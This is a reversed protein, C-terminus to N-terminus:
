SLMTCILKAVAQMAALGDARLRGIDRLVAPHRLIGALVASAKARGTQDIWDDIQPPLTEQLGDSVGRVIAWRWGRQTAADAFAASERDVLDAGSRDAFARKAIPTTLTTASSAIISDSRNTMQLPSGFTPAWRRGDDGIVTSILHASRTMYTKRLSGALGALIVPQTAPAVLTVSAAWHQIGRSGPGCCLLRCRQGLGARRLARREFELPSVIIPRSDVNRGDM